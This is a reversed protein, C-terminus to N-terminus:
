RRTCRQIGCRPKFESQVSVKHSVIGGSGEQQSKGQPTQSLCHERLLCGNVNLGSGGTTFPLHHLYLHPLPPSQPLPVM